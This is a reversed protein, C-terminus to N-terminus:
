HQLRRCLDNADRLLPVEAAGFVRRTAAIAVDGDRQWLLFTM